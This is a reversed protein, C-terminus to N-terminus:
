AAAKARAMVAVCTRCALLARLREEDAQWENYNSVQVGCESSLSQIDARVAHRRSGIATHKWEHPM